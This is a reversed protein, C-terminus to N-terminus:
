AVRQLKADLAKLGLVQRVIGELEVIHAKDITIQEELTDM